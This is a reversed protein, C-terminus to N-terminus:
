CQHGQVVKLVWFLNKTFKKAIKPQLVRKLLLNHHFPQLYILVVAHTHFKKQMLRLDHCNLDRGELNVFAQAPPCWLPTGEEFTTIKSSNARRAHFCKCIPVSMSNIMVLVQSLSKFPTLMSSRSGLLNWNNKAVKPKPLCKVLSNRRFQSPIFRSLRRLDTLNKAYFTRKLWRFKSRKFNLADEM